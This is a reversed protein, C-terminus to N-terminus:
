RCYNDDDQSEHVKAVDALPEFGNVVENDQQHNDRSHNRRPIGELTEAAHEMMQADEAAHTEGVIQQLGDDAAGDETAIAEGAVVLQADGVGHHYSRAHYDGLITEGSEPEAIM